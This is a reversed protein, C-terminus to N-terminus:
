WAAMFTSSKSRLTKGKEMKAVSNLALFALLALVAIGALAKFQGSPFNLDIIQNGVQLRM